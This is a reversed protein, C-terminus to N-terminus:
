KNEFAKKIGEKWSTPNFGLAIIKDCKEGGKVPRKSIEPHLKQFEVISGKKIVQEPNEVNRAVRLLELCFDYPTIIEPSSVHYIGTANQNVLTLLAEPLDDILTPTLTQDAFMPYISDRKGEKFEDYVKLISRAFDLKGPFEARYPYSIRTTLSDIGSDKVAKEALIKTWAYWGVQDVSSAIPDDESYPGDEGDFVFGTSIFIPFKKLELCAQILNKTGIVNVRYASNQDLEKQDNPNQPRNKEIEDVNTLGAFNLVYKGPFNELAKKVQDPDAIDFKDAPFIEGEALELFRSGTLSSAGIVLWQGPLTTKM